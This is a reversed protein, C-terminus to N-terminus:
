SRLRLTEPSFTYSRFDGDIFWICLVDDNGLVKNVTMVNSGSKLVVIDGVKFSM